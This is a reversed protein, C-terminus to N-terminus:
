CWVGCCSSAGCPTKLTKSNWPEPDREVHRCAGPRRMAAASRPRHLPVTIESHTWFSMASGGGEGSSDVDVAAGGDGAGSADEVQVVSTAAHMAKEPERFEGSRVHKNTM